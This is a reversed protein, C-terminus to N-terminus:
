SLFSGSIIKIRSIFEDSQFINNFGEKKIGINSCDRMQRGRNPGFQIRDNRKMKNLTKVFVFLFDIELLISYQTVVLGLPTTLNM